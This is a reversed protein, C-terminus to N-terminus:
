FNKKKESNLSKLEQKVKKNELLRMQDIALTIDVSALANWLLPWAPRVKKAGFILM